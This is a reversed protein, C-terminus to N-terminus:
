PFDTEKDMEQRAFARFEEHSAEPDLGPCILKAEEFADPDNLLAEFFPWRRCIDPKAQHIRCGEPGLLRCQGDQDCLVSFAGERPECFRAIFEEEDLGLLAAAPGIQEPRLM